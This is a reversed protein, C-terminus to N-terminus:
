GNSPSVAEPQMLLLLNSDQSKPKWKFGGRDPAYHSFPLAYLVGDEDRAWLEVQRHGRGALSSPIDRDFAVIQVTKGNLDAWDYHMAQEHENFGHESLARTGAEDQDFTMDCVLCRRYVKDGRISFGQWGPRDTMELLKYEISQSM